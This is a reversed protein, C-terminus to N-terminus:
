DQEPSPIDGQATQTMSNTLVRVALGSVEGSTTFVPLLHIRTNVQRSLVAFQLAAKRKMLSTTESAIRLNM